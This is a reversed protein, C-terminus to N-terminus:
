AKNIFKVRTGVPLTTPIAIFYGSGGGMCGYREKYGKVTIGFTSKTISKLDMTCFQYSSSEYLVIYNKSKDTYYESLTENASKEDDSSGYGSRTSKAENLLEIYDDYSVVEMYAKVEKVSDFKAHQYTKPLTIEGSTLCSIIIFVAILVIVCGLIVTAGTKLKSTKNEETNTENIIDTPKVENEETNVEQNM